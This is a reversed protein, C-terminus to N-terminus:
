SAKNVTTTSGSTSHTQTTTLNGDSDYTRIAGSTKDVKNFFRMYLQVIMERFTTARGSPEVVSISDFDDLLIQVSPITINETGGFRIELYLSSVDTDGSAGGSLNLLVLNDSIREDPFRSGSFVGDKYLDVVMDQLLGESPNADVWKNGTTKDFIELIVNYAQQKIAM